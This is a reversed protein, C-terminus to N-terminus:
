AVSLGAALQDLVLHCTACTILVGTIDMIVQISTGANAPDVGAKALAFPLGTGAVVSCLVILFLSISIATANLANGNTLYVRVWGGAALGAGLLLGVALQQQMARRVGPGTPKMSGTALGRIVKIASQNGANGGAGVLMTLFLTVVLHDRLLEQYSDLVVSSMSQLVLLGLLWRGRSWAEEAASREAPPTNIIGPLECFELDPDGSDCRAAEKKGWEELQAERWQELSGVEDEVAAALKFSSSGSRRHRQGGGGLHHAALLSASSGGGSGGKWPHEAAAAKANWLAMIKPPPSAM